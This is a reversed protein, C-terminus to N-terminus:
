TAAMDRSRFDMAATVYDDESAEITPMTLVVEDELTIREFGSEPYALTFILQYSAGPQGLRERRNIDDAITLATHSAMQLTVNGDYGRIKLENRARKEGVFMESRIEQDPIIGWSKVLLFDGSLRVNDRYITLQASEGTLRHQGAAM